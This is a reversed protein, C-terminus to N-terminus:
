RIRYRIGDGGMEGFPLRKGADLARLTPRGIHAFVLRRVGRRRAEVAVDLAAAHGGAGGAFRIPRRWGAAEAFMLDAGDAWDPFQFFEPAWVVRHHRWGVVYGVTPRATHVVPHPEIFLEGTAFSGIAPELGHVQALRRLQTRLESHDDTVLWADLRGTPEAGPGGDFAVRAGECAVLLGAPGYRPSNM